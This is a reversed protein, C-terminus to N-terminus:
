LTFQDLLEHKSIFVPGDIACDVKHVSKLGKSYKMQTCPFYVTLMFVQVHLGIYCSPLSHM